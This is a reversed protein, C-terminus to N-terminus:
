KTLPRRPLSGQRGPSCSRSYFGPLQMTSGEFARRDAQARVVANNSSVDRYCEDLTLYANDGTESLYSKRPRDRYQSLSIRCSENTTPQSLVTAM